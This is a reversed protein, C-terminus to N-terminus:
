FSRALSLSLSHSALSFRSNSYEGARYGSTAVRSNDGFAYAYALDARWGDRSWGLGCALTHELTSGNLPTVLHTSIPSKGYRWGGRLIWEDALQYEVGIAVVVRDEWRVPVRDLVTAGIAGNVTPDSGGALTVELQDFAESWQLWEVTGGVRLRDSVQWELGGALSLPLRNRTVAEYYAFSDLGTLGLVPAQASFDVRADGRGDLDIPPRVKFAFAWDDCPKYVTGLEFAPSWGSTKMDLGVKAGALAPNSQFIFAADFDTEHYVAGISGGLSWCDNLRWAIGLNTRLALFRSAHPIQGYSIGGIGGTVDPYNWDAQQASMPAFSFGYSLDGAEPQWALAFEPLLGTRDSLSYASGGRLFEADGYVGQLSVVWESGGPMALGAPNRQMAALADGSTLGFAGAAGADAAGYDGRLVGNGWLLDPTSVACVFAM